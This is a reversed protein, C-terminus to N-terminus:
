EYYKNRVMQIVAVLTVTLLSSFVVKILFDGWNICSWSEIFYLVITFPVVMFFLYKIYNSFGLVKLSIDRSIMDEKSVYLKLIPGKIYAMFLSASAHMGPTNSFVDVILGLLFAFLLLGYRSYSYPFFIISYLYIFFVGYGLFVINNFIVVQLLLLILAQFIVFIINTKM